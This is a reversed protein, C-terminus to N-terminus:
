GRRKRKKRRQGQTLGDDQSTSEGLEPDVGAGQEPLPPESIERGSGEVPGGPEPPPDGPKPWPIAAGAEWAPPRPAPWVGILMLGIAVFWIVLGLQAFPLLILSVGLAMGLTAWFRTLLGTRMSWLPIYVLGIVLGLLAPFTLYTAVQIAGSDNILDDARNEKPTDPDKDNSDSPTTSTETAGGQAENVAGANDGEPSSDSRAQQETQRELQPLEKDFQDAADALGVSRVIGSVLLLVPGIMAFIVLQRRVLESRGSAAKFLFLLPGIFCVFSLGQLVNGILIAGSHGHIDVLNDATTEGGGTVSQQIVVSIVYLAVGLLAALGAPRSWRRERELLEAKPVTTDM